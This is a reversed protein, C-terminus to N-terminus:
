RIKDTKVTVDVWYPNIRSQNDPIYARTDTKVGYWALIIV